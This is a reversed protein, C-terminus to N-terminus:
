GSFTYAKHAPANDRLLEIGKVGAAQPQKDPM